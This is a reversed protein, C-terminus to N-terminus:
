SNQNDSKREGVFFQPYYHPLDQIATWHMQLIMDDKLMSRMLPLFSSNPDVIKVGCKEAVQDITLVQVYAVIKQQLVDRISNDQAM